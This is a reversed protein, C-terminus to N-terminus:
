KCLSEQLTQMHLKTQWNQWVHADNSINNNCLATCLKLDCCATGSPASAETEGEPPSPQPASTDIVVPPPPLDAWLPQGPLLPEMFQYDNSNYGGAASLVAEDEVYQKDWDLSYVQLTCM